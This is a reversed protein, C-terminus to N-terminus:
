GSMRSWVAAASAGQHSMMTQFHIRGVTVRDTTKWSTSNNICYMMIPNPLNKEESTGMCTAQGACSRAEQRMIMVGRDMAGSGEGYPGSRQQQDQEMKWVWVGRGSMRVGGGVSVIIEQAMLVGDAEASVMARWSIIVAGSGMGVDLGAKYGTIQRVLSVQMMM